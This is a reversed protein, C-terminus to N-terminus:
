GQECQTQCDDSWSIMTATTVPQPKGNPDACRLPDIVYGSRTKFRSGVSFRTDGTIVGLVRTGGGTTHLLLPAGSSGSGFDSLVCTKNSDASVDQAKSYKLPLGLPHTLTFLETDVFNNKFDDESALPIHCCKRVKRELKLIAWDSHQDSNMSAVIKAVRFYESCPVRINTGGRPRSVVSRDATRDPVFFTNGAVVDAKVIAHGAALIVNDGILTATSAQITYEEFFSVIDAQTDQWLPYGDLFVRNRLKVAPIILPRQQQQAGVRAGRPTVTVLQGVAKAALQAYDPAASINLLPSLRFDNYGHALASLSVNNDNIDQM